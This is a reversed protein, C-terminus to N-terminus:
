HRFKGIFRKYRESIRIPIFLVLKNIILKIMNRIRTNKEIEEELHLIHREREIMVENIDTLLISFEEFLKQSEPNSYDYKIKKDKSM